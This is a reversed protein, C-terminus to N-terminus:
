RVHAGKVARRFARWAPKPKGELDFLGAGQCFSCSPDANYQDQWAFWDIGAIRWRRRMELLRRYTAELFAAQGGSGVIFPSPATGWSALGLESVLLPLRGLRAESMARRVRWLQYELQSLNTSYPHLAALDFDHRVGPRRLLRRLFVWTKVGANVPAVGALVIKARADAGRIAHASVQLLRAYAAPNPWPRWFVVFNPENWIQWLRIPLRRTRGRWFEGGHGYRGVLVRLFRAWAARARPRLPPRAGERALWAPTGYIFPQVRIGHEAAAGIEADLAAFDYEGPRPEVQFWYIPIRLTGVKGEMRTLDAETLPAQPVVGFFGPALRGGAAM